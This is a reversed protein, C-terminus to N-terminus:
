SKPIPSKLFTYNIMKQVIKKAFMKVIYSSKAFFIWNKCIQLNKQLNKFYLVLAKLHHIMQWIQVDFIPNLPPPTLNVGGLMNQNELVGAPIPNLYKCPFFDRIESWTGQPSWITKILCVSLMQELKYM